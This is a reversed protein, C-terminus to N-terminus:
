NFGALARRSPSNGLVTDTVADRPVILPARQMARAVAAGIEEASPISRNSAVSGSRGPVFLEPGAEGVVYPRGASVPGGHQRGPINEGVTVYSTRITIDTPMNRLARSVALIQPLLNNGLANGTALASSHILTFGRNAKNGLDLLAAGLKAAEETTLGQFQKGIEAADHVIEATSEDSATTNASATEAAMRQWEAYDGELQEMLDTNGSKVANQYQEYAAFGEDASLGAAAATRKFAVATEALTVDWGDAIAAQVELIYAESQKLEPAIGAHFNAFLDRGLREQESPGGFLSKIGGWVKGALKGIGSILAPGFAALLPGVLPIGGLAGMVGQMKGLFGTAATEGEGVFLKGWGQTMVSQLGGLFGGGGAFAQAFTGTINDLFGEAAAQAKLPLVDLQKGMADAALGWHGLAASQWEISGTLNHLPPAILDVQKGMAGAALGWHGLASSTDEITGKLVLAGAAVSPKGGPTAGPAGGLALGLGFGLDALEIMLPGALEKSERVDSAFGRLSRGSDQRFQEIASAARAIMAHYDTGYILDHIRALKDAQVLVAIYFDAYLDLAGALASAVTDRFRWMAAAALGVGAVIAPFILNAGGTAITTAIALQGMAIVLLGVKVIVVGLGLAVIAGTGVMAAEFTESHNITDILAGSVASLTDALASAVPALERGITIGLTSVASTARTFSGVIGEQQTDAMRQAAGEAAELDITYDKLADGGVALMALMAPGARKGFLSLIEGSSVGKINFEDLIENLPLMAGTADQLTLAYKGTISELAASPTILTAIIGRLATGGREGAMANSALIGLAASTEEFQVGAAAAVPGAYSMADGM